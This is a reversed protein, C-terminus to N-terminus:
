HQLGPDGYFRAFDAVAVNCGQFYFLFPLVVSLAPPLNRSVPQAPDRSAKIGNGAEMAAVTLEPREHASPRFIITAAHAM